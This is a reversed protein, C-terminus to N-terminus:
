AFGSREACHRCARGIAPAAAIGVFKAFVCRFQGRERRIDDQGSATRDYSRQQLRGPSDRDYKHDNGIRDAGAEDITQRPRAAIGSSKDIEFVADARFPQFQELLDCRAHRSRRDQAIGRYGLPGALEARDL